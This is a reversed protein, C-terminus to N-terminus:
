TWSSDDGGGDGGDDYSADQYGNSGDDYNSSNDAAYQSGDDAPPQNGYYNNVTQNIVETPQQAATAWPSAGGTGGGLGGGHGGFLSSIGQFLLAGGVVGAATSAANRLFGGGAPAAPQPQPQYNPAPYGAPQPAAAPAGMAPAGMPAGTPATTGASAPRAPLAGGLFSATNRPAQAPQNELTAVKRELEGIRQQAQQLSMDQILVSQVLLYLADPQRQALTRILADADPDKPAPPVNALRDILGSVLQREDPTM